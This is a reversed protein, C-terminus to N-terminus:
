QKRSLLDKWFHEIKKLILACQGLDFKGKTGPAFEAVHEDIAQNLKSCLSLGDDTLKLFTARKDYDSQMQKVYGNTVMKRINYSANSGIYYGKAIVDGATIVNGGINLLIFAQVANIDVIRLLDLECRVVDLFLRYNREGLVSIEVCSNKM